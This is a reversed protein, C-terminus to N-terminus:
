LLRMKIAISLVIKDKWLYLTRTSVHLLDAIGQDTYRNNWYKEELLKKKQPDCAAYIHDIASITRKMRELDSSRLLQNVKALTPDGVESGHGEQQPPTSNIIDNDMRDILKKTQQYNRLEGEIYRMINKSLKYKNVSALVYTSYDVDISECLQQCWESHLFTKSQREENAYDIVAQKLMAAIM